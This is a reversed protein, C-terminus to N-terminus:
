TKDSRFHLVKLIAIIKGVSAWESVTRGRLRDTNGLTLNINSSTRMVNPRYADSTIRRQREM